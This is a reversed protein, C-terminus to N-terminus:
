RDKPELYPTGLLAYVDAEILCAFRKGEENYLGYQNLQWGKEKALKRLRINNEVSGTHHILQTPLEDTDNYKNIDLQINFKPDLIYSAKTDGHVLEQFQSRCYDIVSEYHIFSVLCDVDAISNSNRRYSGVLTLKDRIFMLNIDILDDIYSKPQRVTTFGKRIKLEPENTSPELGPMFGTEIFKEIKTQISNGVGRVSRFGNLRCDEFAEDSLSTINSAATFYAQAKFPISHANGLQKLQKVLESKDM